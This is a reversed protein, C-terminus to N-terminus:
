SKRSNWAAAVTPPMSSVAAFIEALLEEQRETLGTQLLEAIADKLTQMDEIDDTTLTYPEPEGADEAEGDYPELNGARAREIATAISANMSLIRAKM